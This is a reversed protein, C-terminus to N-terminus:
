ACPAKEKILGDIAQIAVDIAETIKRPHPMDPYKPSDVRWGNFHRLVAAAEAPTM